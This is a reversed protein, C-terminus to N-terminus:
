ALMRFNKHLFAIAVSYRNQFPIFFSLTGYLMHLHVHRVLPDPAIGWSIKCVLGGYIVGLATNVEKVVGLTEPSLCLLLENLM